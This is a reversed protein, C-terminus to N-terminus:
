GRGFGTPWRDDASELLTYLVSEGLCASSLGQSFVYLGLGIYRRCNGPKFKPNIVVSVVGWGLKEFARGISGTGKFLELCLM